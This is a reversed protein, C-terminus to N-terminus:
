RSSGTCQNWRLWALVAIRSFLLRRGLRRSPLDGRGAAEYVTKRNVGLLAAVQDADLVDAADPDTAPPPANAARGGDGGNPDVTNDNAPRGEAPPPGHEAGVGPAASRRKAVSTM